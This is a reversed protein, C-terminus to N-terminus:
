GNDVGGRGGWSETRELFKMGTWSITSQMMEAVETEIEGRDIKMGEIMVMLAPHDVPLIAPIKILRM